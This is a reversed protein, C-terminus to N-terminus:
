GGRRAANRLLSQRQVPRRGDADIRLLRSGALSATKFDGGTFNGSRLAVGQLLRTGALSHRRRVLAELAPVQGMEGQSMAAATQELLALGREADAIASDPAVFFFNVTLTTSSFTSQAGNSEAEVKQRVERFM